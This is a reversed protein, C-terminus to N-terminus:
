KLNNFEKLNRQQLLCKTETENNKIEGEIRFYRDTTTNSTEDSNIVTKDRQTEDSYLFINKTKFIM